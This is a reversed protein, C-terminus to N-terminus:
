SIIQHVDLILAISGDGLISAGSFMEANRIGKGLPKIVTQCHGIVRDVLFGVANGDQETVVIQPYDCPNGDVAFAQRLNVYPIYDDRIRVLGNIETAAEAKDFAICERVTQLNFIYYKGCVETMFGDIIALTLPITLSITTGKDKETAIGISGNLKELNKKVVDMGVGRGSIDTTTQATSFGPEFILQYIATDGADAPITLGRNVAAALIGDRDLGAGDETISIRVNAGTHEASIRITGTEDKGKANRQEPLEIGHDAANRLIHMLPDKLEEIVNKDLETEGGATEYRIKKNLSKSLDHILRTFSSFTEALPVMRISMTIDRLDATLRGLAESITIFESHKERNSEQTLRAHLTVMEGVLNVLADLKENKVRISSTEVKRREQQPSGENEAARKKMVAPQDSKKEEAADPKSLIKIGSPSIKQIEIKAYDEVFIFVGKIEQDSRSTELVIDWSLYCQEPDFDDLFPIEEASATMTMRGMEEMESLLPALQVGRLLINRDPSFTIHWIDAPESGNKEVKEAPQNEEAHATKSETDNEHKKGLIATFDSLIIKRKEIEADSDNKLLMERICDKARLTLEIIESSVPLTGKRIADFATEIDHTFRSIEDFGFM